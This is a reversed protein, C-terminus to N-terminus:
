GKKNWIAMAPEFECNEISLKGLVLIVPMRWWWCSFPKNKILSTM